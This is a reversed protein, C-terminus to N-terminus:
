TTKHGCMRVGGSRCGRARVHVCVGVGAAGHWRQRPSPYNFVYALKAPPQQLATAENTNSGGSEKVEEYTADNM